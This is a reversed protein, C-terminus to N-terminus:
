YNYHSHKKARIREENINYHSGESLKQRKKELEAKLAMKEKLKSMIEQPDDKSVINNKEVKQYLTNIQPKYVKEEWTKMYEQLMIEITESYDAKENPSSSRFDIDKIERIIEEKFLLLEDSFDKDTITRELDSVQKTLNGINKQMEKICSSWATVEKKLKIIEDTKDSNKHPSVYKPIPSTFHSPVSRPSKDRESCISKVEEQLEELQSKLKGKLDFNEDDVEEQLHNSINFFQNM